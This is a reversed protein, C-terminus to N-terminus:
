AIPSSRDGALLEQPIQRFRCRGLSGTLAWILDYRDAPWQTPLAQNSAALEAAIKVIGEHQWAILVSGRLSAALEALQRERGVAFDLRIPVRLVDALPKLTSVSRASPADRTPAAAFLHIPRVFGLVKSTREDGLLAALAGARQWGLVSLDNWNVQGFEDVGAVVQDPTPKEAHRILFIQAVAAHTSHIGSRAQTSRQRVDPQM